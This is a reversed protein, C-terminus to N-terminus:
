DRGRGDPRIRFVTRATDGLMGGKQAETFGANEIVKVPEPDGIPFPADFRQVLANPTFHAHIDIVLDKMNLTEGLM